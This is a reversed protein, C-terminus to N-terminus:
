NLLNKLPIWYTIEPYTIYKIDHESYVACYGTPNVGIEHAYIIGMYTIPDGYAVLIFQRDTPLVHDKVNNWNM